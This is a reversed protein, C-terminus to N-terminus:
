KSLSCKEDSKQHRDNSNNIRDKNPNATPCHISKTLKNFVIPINASAYTRQCTWVRSNLLGWSCYSVCIWQISLRRLATDRQRIPSTAHTSSFVRPMVSFTPVAALLLLATLSASILIKGHLIWVNQRRNASCSLLPFLASFKKTERGKKM